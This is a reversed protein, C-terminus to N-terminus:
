PASRDNTTPRPNTADDVGSAEPFKDPNPGPAGAVRIGPGDPPIPGVLRGSGLDLLERLEPLQRMSQLEAIQRRLDAIEPGLERILDAQAGSAMTRVKRAGTLVWSVATPIREPGLVFVGVLVIITIQGWSLGFM